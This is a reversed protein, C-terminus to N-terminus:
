ARDMGFLLEVVTTMMKTQPIWDNVTTDWSFHNPIEHYYYDRANKFLGRKNEANLKFFQTLTTQEAKERQKDTANPELLQPTLSKRNAEHLSLRQVAPSRATLEFQFLQWSAKPASVCRADLFAKTENNNAQLYKNHPVVNTNNYVNLGKRFVQGNNRHWTIIKHLDPEEDPDPLEATVIADIKEPTDPTSDKSLTLMLHRHPMGRKQFEITLFYCVVVGLQKLELLVKMLAKVKLKFFRAVITPYNIADELEGIVRVLERWKPNVTMIIFLCPPGFERVLAMADQYLQDMCRPGGVFSSALVVKTGQPEGNVGLTKVVGANM